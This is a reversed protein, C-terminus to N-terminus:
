PGCREVFSECINSFAELAYRVHVGLGGGDHVIHYGGGTIRNRGERGCGGCRGQAMAEGLCTWHTGRAGGSVHPLGVAGLPM